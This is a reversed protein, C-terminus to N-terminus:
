TSRRRPHHGERTRPDPTIIRIQYRDDHHRDELQGADIGAGILEDLLRPSADLFAAVDDALRDADHWAGPPALDFRISLAQWAAEIIRPVGTRQGTVVRHLSDPRTM